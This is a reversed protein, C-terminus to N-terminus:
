SHDVLQPVGDFFGRLFKPIIRVIKERFFVNLRQEVDVKPICRPFEPIRVTGFVRIFVEAKGIGKVNAGYRRFIM